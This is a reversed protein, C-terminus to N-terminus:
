EGFADVYARQVEPDPDLLYKQEEFPAPFPLENIYDWDIHEKVADFLAPTIKKYEGTLFVQMGELILFAYARPSINNSVEVDCISIGVEKTGKRTRLSYIIKDKIFNDESAKDFSFTISYDFRGNVIVNKPALIHKVCLAVIHERIKYSVRPRTEFDTKQFSDGYLAFTNIMSM